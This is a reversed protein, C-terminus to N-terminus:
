PVPPPTPRSEGAPERMRRWAITLLAPVLLLSIATSLAIGGVVARAMPARLEAGPGFGVAVPVAALATVLSTMVVARFRTPAAALIAARPAVGALRAQNAQDVLLIGNKLALGIVLLCGLGTVVHLSGGTAWLMTAAGAAAPPAAALAVLALRVSDYQVALIMGAAALGGVLAWGLARVLDALARGSGSDVVRVGPPLVERAASLLRPMPDGASAGDVLAASVSVARERDTRALVGASPAEGVSVVAALPVVGDRVRVPLSLLDSRRSRQDARLRVVVDSRQGGVQISGVRVPATLAGVATALDAVSVGLDAARDRDPILRLEPPGPRASSRAREVMGTREWAAIVAQAAASLVAFDQGRLEVSPEGPPPLDAIATRPISARVQVTPSVERAARAWRDALIWAPDRGGASLGVTLMAGPRVGDGPGWIRAQVAATESQARLWGEIAAVATDIQALDMGPGGEVHVQVLGQDTRPAVERPIFLVAAIGAACLATGLGVTTWPRAVVWANLGAFWRPQAHEGGHGPPIRACRAPTLTVAEVWSLLVAVSLATGFQLFSRGVEGPLILAPSFVAVVALTAAAAAGAISRTGAIAAETPDAGPTLRRVISELVMIADDVVLGVALGLGLLTFTNLTWGLLYVVGVAGLLSMPIALVVNATAGWGGLAIRCVVATLLIAVVIEFGIEHVAHRIPVTRDDVVRLTLEPPLDRALDPIRALVGDAVAVANAGPRKRILLGQAPEGEVRYINRGDGFGDEILAVDGLRVGAEPRVALRALAGLDAAEGLLRLGVAGSGDDLSGAPADLHNRRLAEVADGPAIGLAQLRRADLWIRVERAGAGVVEIDGVGPVTRLDRAVLHLSWDSLVRPPVAGTLALALIPEDDPNATRVVPADAERPLRRALQALRQRLEVAAADVDAGLPLALGVTVGGRRSQSWIRATGPVQAAAEEIPVALAQEVAEPSAGPWTAQVTIVPRALDPYQSIGVNGLALGGLVVAVVLVAWAAVRRRAFWGIM